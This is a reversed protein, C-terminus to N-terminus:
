SGAGRLARPHLGERTQLASSLVPHCHNPPVSTQNSVQERVRDGWWSACPAAWLSLYKSVVCHCCNVTSDPDADLNSELARAREVM